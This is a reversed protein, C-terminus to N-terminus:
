IPRRPATRTPQFNGAEDLQLILVPRFPQLNDTEGDIGTRCFLEVLKYAFVVDIGGYMHHVLISRSFPAVELGDGHREDEVCLALFNPLVLAIGGDVHKLVLDFQQERFSSPNSSQCCSIALRIERAEM